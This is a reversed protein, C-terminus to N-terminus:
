FERDCNNCGVDPDGVADCGQCFWLCESNPDHDPAYQHFGDRSQLWNPDSAEEMFHCFFVVMTGREDDEM